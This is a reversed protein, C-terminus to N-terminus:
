VPPRWKMKLAERMWPKTDAKLLADGAREIARCASLATKFFRTTKVVAKGGNISYFTLRGYYGQATKDCQLNLSQPWCLTEVNCGIPRNVLSPPHWEYKTGKPPLYEINYEGSM